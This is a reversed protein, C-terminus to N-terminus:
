QMADCRPPDVDVAVNAVRRNSFAAGAADIVGIADVIEPAVAAQERLAAQLDRMLPHRIRACVAAPLFVGGGEPIALSSTM